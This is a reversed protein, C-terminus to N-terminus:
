YAKIKQNIEKLSLRAGDIQTEVKQLQDNLENLEQATKVKNKKSKGLAIFAIVITFIGYTFFNIIVLAASKGDAKLM